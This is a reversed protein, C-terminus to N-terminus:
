QFAPAFLHTQLRGVTPMHDIDGLLGMGRLFRTIFPGVFITRGRANSAQHHFSDAVVFSLHYPTQDVM